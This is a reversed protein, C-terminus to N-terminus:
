ILLWGIALLPALYYRPVPESGLQDTVKALLEVAASRERSGAVKIIQM